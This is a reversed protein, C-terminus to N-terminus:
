RQVLYFGLALGIKGVGLALLRLDDIRELTRLRADAAALTETLVVRVHHPHGRHVRLRAPEYLYHRLIHLAHCLGKIQQQAVGELAPFIVDGLKSM